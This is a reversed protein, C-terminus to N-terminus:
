FRVLLKLLVQMILKSKGSSIGGTQFTDDAFLNNSNGTIRYGAAGHAQSGCITYLFRTTAPQGIIFLLQM